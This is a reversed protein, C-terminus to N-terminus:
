DASTDDVYWGVDSCQRVCCRDAVRPGDV